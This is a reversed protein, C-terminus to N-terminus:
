KITFKPMQQNGKELAYLYVKPATKGIIKANLIANQRIVVGIKKTIAGVMLLKRCRYRTNKGSLIVRWKDM